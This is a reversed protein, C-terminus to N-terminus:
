PIISAGGEITVHVGQRRFSDLPPTTGNTQVVPCTADGQNPVSYYVDGGDPGSVEAIAFTLTSGQTVATPSFTFTTAVNANIDATLAATATATGLLTGDYTAARATLSFSYNGATNASFYLTVRDLTSGPFEPVYFGRFLLDGSPDGPCNVLTTTVDFATSTVPIGLAASGTASASIGDAVLSYGAGPNNISLDAFTAVGNTSSQTTTGALTGGGPNTGIVLHISNTIEPAVVDGETGVKLFAVTVPPTITAGPATTTPQTVFGLRVRVATIDSLKPAVLGGLGTHSAYAPPPGLVRAMFSGLRWVARGISGLGQPPAPSVHPCPLGIPGAVPALLEIKGDPLQHALQLGENSNVQCIEVTVPKALDQAPVVSFDICLGVQELGTTM